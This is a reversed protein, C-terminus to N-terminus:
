MLQIALLPLFPLFSFLECSPKTEDCKKKKRKCTLCGTQSRGRPRKSAPPRKLDKSISKPSQRIADEKGGGMVMDEDVAEFQDNGVLIQGTNERAPSALAVYYNTQALQNRQIAPSQEKALVENWGQGIIPSMQHSDLPMLHLANTQAQAPESLKARLLSSARSHLEPESLSPTRLNLRNLSTREQSFPPFHHLGNEQIAVPRSDSSCFM